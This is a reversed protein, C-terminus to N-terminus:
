AEEIERRSLAKGPTVPSPLHEVLTIADALNMAENCEVFTADDSHRGIYWEAVEPEGDISHEVTCICLRSGDAISKSWMWNGGGAETAEFGIAAMIDDVTMTTM